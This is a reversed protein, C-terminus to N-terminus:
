TCFKCVGKHQLQSDDNTINTYIQLCLGFIFRYRYDFQLELHIEDVLMGVARFLCWRLTNETKLARRCYTLIHSYHWNSLKEIYIYTFDLVLVKHLPYHHLLSYYKIIVIYHTFPMHNPNGRNSQIVACQGLWTWCELDLDSHLGQLHLDLDAMRFKVMHRGQECLSQSSDSDLRGNGMAEWGLGM